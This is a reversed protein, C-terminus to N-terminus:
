LAALSPTGDAGLENLMWEAERQRRTAIAERVAEENNVWEAAIATAIVYELHERVDVQADSLKRRSRRTRLNSLVRGWFAVADNLKLDIRVKEASELSINRSLSRATEELAKSERVIYRYRRKIRAPSTAVVIHRVFGM